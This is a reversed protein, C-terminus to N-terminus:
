HQFILLCLNQWPCSQTYEWLPASALVWDTKSLELIYVLEKCQFVNNPSTVFCKKTRKKLRWYKLVVIV